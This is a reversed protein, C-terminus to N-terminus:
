IQYFEILSGKKALTLQTSPPVSFHELSLSIVAVSPSSSCSVFTANVDDALVFVILVVQLEM